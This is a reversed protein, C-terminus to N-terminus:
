AILWLSSYFLPGVEDKCILEEQIKPKGYVRFIKSKGIEMIMHALEKFLHM